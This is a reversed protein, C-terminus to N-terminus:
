LIQLMKISCYRWALIGIIGGAYGIYAISLSSCVIGGVMTGCGIGLNFIGSYIAMAITTAQPAFRIIEFQLMLNFVTYAIGWFFCLLIVTAAFSTSPRLLLLSVAMGGSTFYFFRRPSRSFGRSFLVSGAIGSLGIVVLVGTILDEGLGAMRGLFPEIYSYATYHATATLLTFLFIATLAKNRFLSPLKHLTMPHTNPIKPFVAALLLLILLASLAICVFTMRWDMYLGIVRGLPLGVIMAISTGTVIMGLAASSKGEPATRVALPSAIGWFVSHACAVGIRSVMLVSYSEAVASLLQSAMFLLTTGLLLKRYEMKSVLMMLPLSMLAVIWAYVSILMGAQAEGVNFDGAIDTLLGIPIFESTNFVFASLTLGLVPLWGRIITFRGM